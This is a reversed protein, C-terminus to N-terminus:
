KTRVLSSNQPKSAPMKEPVSIDTEDDTINYQDGISNNEHTRVSLSDNKQLHSSTKSIIISRFQYAHHNINQISEDNTNNEKCTNLFPNM